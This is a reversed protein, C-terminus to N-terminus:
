NKTRGSGIAWGRVDWDFTDIVELLRFNCGIGGYTQSLINKHDSPLEFRLVDLGRQAIMIQRNLEGVPPRARSGLDEVTALTCEIMDALGRALDNELKSINTM